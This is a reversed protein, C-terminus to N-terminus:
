KKLDQLADKVKNGAKDLENGTKQAAKDIEKGAHEAPGEKRCGSTAALGSLLACLALGLVFNRSITKM